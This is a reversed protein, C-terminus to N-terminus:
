LNAEDGHKYINVQLYYKMCLIDHFLINVKDHGQARYVTWASSSKRRSVAVTSLSMALPVSNIETCLKVHAPEINSQNDGYVM